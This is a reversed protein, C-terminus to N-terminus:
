GIVAHREGARVALNVGRIIQADGFSKRVDTLTLIDHNM